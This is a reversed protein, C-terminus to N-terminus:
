KHDGNGNKGNQKYEVTSQWARLGALGMVILSVDRQLDQLYKMDNPAVKKIEEASIWGPHTMAFLQFAFIVAPLTLFVTVAGWCLVQKWLPDRM